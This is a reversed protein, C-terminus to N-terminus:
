AKSGSPGGSGKKNDNPGKKNSGSGFLNKTTEKLKDKVKDKVKSPQKSPTTTDSPTKGVTKDDPSQIPPTGIKQADTAPHFAISQQGSPTAIGSSSKSGTGSPDAADKLEGTWEYLKIINGSKLKVDTGAVPIMGAAILATHTAPEWAIAIVSKDYDKFKDQIGGSVKEQDRVVKKVFTAGHITSSEVKLEVILGKHVKDLSPPFVFDALDDTKSYVSQERINTQAELDIGQRKKTEMEFEFQVWGETGGKSSPMGRLRDESRKMWSAVFLTIPQTAKKGQQLPANQSPLSEPGKGKPTSPPTGVPTAICQSLALLALLVEVLTRPKSSLLM